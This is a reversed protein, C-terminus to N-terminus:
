SVQQLDAYGHGGDFLHHIPNLRVSYGIAHYSGNVDAKLIQAGYNGEDKWRAICKRSGVDWIYVEANQSLAMLRMHSGDPIWAIDKVPSHCKLSGVVQGGGIGGSAWDVLHIYGRRGTIALLKGEQPDFRAVDISRSEAGEGGAVGM